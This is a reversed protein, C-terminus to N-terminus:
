RIPPLGISMRHKSRESKTSEANKRWWSEVDDMKRYMIDGQFQHVPIGIESLADYISVMDIDPDKAADILIPVADDGVYALACAARLAPIRDERSQPGNWRYDPNKLEAKLQDIDLEVIDAVFPSQPDILQETPHVLWRDLIITPCFVYGLMNGRSTQEGRVNTVWEWRLYKPHWMAIDSVSLGVGNRVRGSQAFYYRGDASLWCYSGVYLVFVALLALLYRRVKRPAKM